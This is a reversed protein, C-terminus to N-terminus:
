TQNKSCLKLICGDMLGRCASAASLCLISLWRVNVSRGGACVRASGATSVGEVYSPRPWRGGGFFCSLVFRWGTWLTVSLQSM